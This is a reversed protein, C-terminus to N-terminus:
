RRRDFHRVLPYVQTNLARMAELLPTYPEYRVNVIGKNSDRNSPGAHKDLPDNDAYKFWHWGVCGRSEILSLAFHQYFYGRDKQTLVTWGAGTQNKMGSDQGKAYWETVIVPKGAWGVWKRVSDGPTWTGYVNVSVADLHRGAAKWVPSYGKAGGHFRSGFYMHNPDAQRIAKGVTAFYRDLVYGLWGERDSTDISKASAWKGKRERLWAEAAKRGASGSPLKLYRELSDKSLELENDSMYGLLYPDNRLHAVAKRAYATCFSPFDPEFVWLLAGGKSRGRSRKRAFTEAFSLKPTYVTRPSVKKLLDDDSWAGTGNFGGRRLLALTKATWRTKDGFKRGFAKRFQPGRQIGVGNVAVHIFPYGDPDILLWRGDIKKCRFFGAGKTRRGGAWGGYRSLRVGHYPRFGAVNGLIRTKHLTHKGNKQWAEVSITRDSAGGAVGAGSLFVATVAALRMSRRPM